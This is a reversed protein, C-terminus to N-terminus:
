SNIVPPDLNNQPPPAGNFFLTVSQHGSTFLNYYRIRLLSKGLCYCLIFQQSYMDFSVTSYWKNILKRTCSTIGMVPINAFNTAVERSPCLLVHFPIFVRMNKFM